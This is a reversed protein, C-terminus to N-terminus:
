RCQTSVSILQQDDTIAQSRAETASKSHPHIIHFLRVVDGGDKVSFVDLRIYYECYVVVVVVVVVVVTTTNNNHSSSCVSKTKRECACKRYYEM